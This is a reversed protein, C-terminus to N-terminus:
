NLLFSFHMHLSEKIKNVCHLNANTHADILTSARAINRIEFFHLNANNSKSYYKKYPIMTKRTKM